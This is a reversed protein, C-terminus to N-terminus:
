SLAEKHARDLRGGGSDSGFRALLAICSEAGLHDVDLEVRPVIDVRVKPRAQDAMDEVAKRAVESRFRTYGLLLRRMTVITGAWLTGDLAAAKLYAGVQLPSPLLVPSWLRMRFVWEWLAVMVAFFLAARLFRKMRLTPYPRRAAADSARRGRPSARLEFLKGRTWSM